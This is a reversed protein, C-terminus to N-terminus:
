LPLKGVQILNARMDSRRMNIRCYILESQVLEIRFTRLEGSLLPAIMAEIDL